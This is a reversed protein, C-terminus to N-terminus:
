FYKRYRLGADEGGGARIASVSVSEPNTEDVLQELLARSVGRSSSGRGTTAGELPFDTSLVTTGSSFEPRSTGERNRWILKQNVRVYMTNEKCIMTHYHTKEKKGQKGNRAGDWGM